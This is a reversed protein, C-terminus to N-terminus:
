INQNFLDDIQNAKENQDIDHVVLSNVTDFKDFM